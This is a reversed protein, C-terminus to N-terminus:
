RRRGGVEMAAKWRRRGEDGDCTTSQRKNTEFQDDQGEGEEWRVCSECTARRRRSDKAKRGGEEATRRDNGDHRTRTLPRRRSTLATFSSEDYEDDDSARTTTTTISCEGAPRATGASFPSSAGHENNPPQHQDLHSIGIKSLIKSLLYDLTTFYKKTKCMQLHLAAVFDRLYSFFLM